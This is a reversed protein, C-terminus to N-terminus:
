DRHYESSFDLLVFITNGMFIVKLWVKRKFILYCLPPPIM